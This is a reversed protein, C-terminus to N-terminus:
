RYAWSDLARGVSSNPRVYDFMQCGTVGASIGAPERLRWHQHSSHTEDQQPFLPLIYDYGKNATPVLQQM